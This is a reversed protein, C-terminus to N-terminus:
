PAPKSGRGSVKILPEQPEEKALEKV